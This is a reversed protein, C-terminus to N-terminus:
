LILGTIDEGAGTITNCAALAFLTIIFFYKM